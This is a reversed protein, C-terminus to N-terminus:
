DLSVKLNSARRTQSAACAQVSDKGHVDAPQREGLVGVHPFELDTGDDYSPRGEPDTRGSPPLGHAILGVRPIGGLSHNPSLSLWKDVRPVVEPAIKCLDSLLPRSRRLLLATTTAAGGDLALEAPQLVVVRQRHEAHPADFSDPKM